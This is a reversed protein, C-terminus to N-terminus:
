VKQQIALVAKNRLESILSMEKQTIQLKKAEFMDAYILGVPTNNVVMPLLLFYRSDIAKVYLAPIKNAINPVGVDEIVIDLGKALSLHFVDADFDLSFRFDPIITSIKEGFGFRAVM